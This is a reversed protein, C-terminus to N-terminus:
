QHLKGLMGMNSGRKVWQRVTNKDIIVGEKIGHKLMSKKITEDLLGKRLRKKASSQRRLNQFNEVAEKTAAEVKSKLCKAESATSGKPRGISKAESPALLTDLFISVTSEGNKNVSSDCESSLDNSERSHSSSLALLAGAAHETNNMNIGTTTSDGTLSSVCTQEGFLVTSKKLKPKMEADMLKKVAYNIMNMTMNPFVTQGEQLLKEAVGHPTRVCESKSDVIKRAIHNVCQV